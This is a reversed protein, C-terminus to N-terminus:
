AEALVDIQVQLLRVLRRLEVVTCPGDLHLRFTTKMSLSGRLVHKPLDSELLSIRVVGDRRFEDLLAAGRKASEIAAHPAPQEIQKIFADADAGTLKVGGMPNSEIM